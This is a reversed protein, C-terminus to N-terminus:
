RSVELSIPEGPSIRFGAPPSQRLVIGAPLGPYPNSGVVAVRFGRARLIDAAREGNVGILDPMLYSVAPAGRNILLAVATGATKAPPQQAVVVDAPYGDSRIESTGALTLGDQALRLEATRETEGALEPITSARLGASLWVRVGRQPRATSGPAPEQAIVRGAGVRPDLRRIEDVKLTLGLRSLLTTAENATRATLDPVKVERAKLALRASAAFCILFTAALAAALMFTKGASWMRNTLQM